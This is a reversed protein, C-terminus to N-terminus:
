CRNWTQIVDVLDSIKRKLGNPFNSLPRYIDWNNAVKQAYIKKTFSGRSGVKEITCQDIYDELTRASVNGKDYWIGVNMGKSKLDYVEAEIFDKAKKFNSRDTVISNIEEADSDIVIYANRSFSFMEIIKKVAVSEEIRGDDILCLSDLLTGGFMQFEYHIGRQLVPVSNQHCYMKIWKDILVVDSPGEVWIVGNTQLLDSGKCGLSELLKIPRTDVKRVATFSTKRKIHHVEEGKEKKDNTERAWDTSYNNDVYLSSFEYVSCVNPNSLFENILVNSHSAIFFQRKISPLVDKDDMMRDSKQNRMLTKGWARKWEIWENSIQVYGQNSGNHELLSKEIATNFWLLFRIFRRIRRPELNKDPEDLLIVKSGSFQIQMLVKACYEQGSSLREYEGASSMSVPIYRNQTDQASKHNSSSWRGTKDFHIQKEFIYSMGFSLLIHWTAYTERSRIKKELEMFPVDGSLLTVRKKYKNLNGEQLFGDVFFINGIDDGQTEIKLKSSHRKDTKRNETLDKNQYHYPLRVQHCQSDHFEPREECELVFSAESLEYELNGILSLTNTKGAGNGGIFLNFQSIEDIKCEEGYSLIDSLTVKSIRM